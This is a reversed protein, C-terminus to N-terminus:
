AGCAIVNVYRPSASVVAAPVTDDAKLNIRCSTTSIQDIQVTINYHGALVTAVVTPNRSQFLGAPFVWTYSANANALSLTADCLKFGQVTGANGANTANAAYDATTAHSASTAAGASTAYDASAASGARTAFGAGGASDASAASDARSVVVGANPNGNADYHQVRAYPGDGVTGVHSGDSVDKRYLRRVGDTLSPAPANVYGPHTHNVPSKGDLVPQLNDVQSIPHTHVLPAYVGDHTHDGPAAQNTGAGLTHHIATHSGDTDVGEHTNEARLKTGNLGDHPHNRLADAMYALRLAVSPWKTSTGSLDLGVRPDVASSGGSDDSLVHQLQNVESQIANIDNADVDEVFNLHTKFPTFAGPYVAAM